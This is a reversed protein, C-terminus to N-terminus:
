FISIFTPRTKFALGKGEGNGSSPRKSIVQAHTTFYSFSPLEKRSTILHWGQGKTKGGSFPTNIPSQLKV